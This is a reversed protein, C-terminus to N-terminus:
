CSSEPTQPWSNILSQILVVYLKPTEEDKVCFFSCIVHVEDQDFSDHPFNPVIEWEDVGFFEQRDHYLVSVVEKEAVNHLMM